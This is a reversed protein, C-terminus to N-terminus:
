KCYIKKDNKGFQYNVWKGRQAPYNYGTDTNKTRAGATKWGAPSLEEFLWKQAPLFSSESEAFVPAHGNLEIWGAARKTWAGSQKLTEIDNIVGCRRIMIIREAAVPGIGPVHLLTDFDAKNIEVPFFGPNMVAWATKPDTELPIDGMSNFVLDPFRFGYARMLFDCQYLRHERLLPSGEFGKGSIEDKKKQIASKTAESTSPGHQKQYASFYARFMFYDRYLRDVSRMIDFDKEGAAGIVFQTTQSTTKIATGSLGNKKAQLLGSVRSVAPLIDRELKKDPAIAELHRETPAELNISLRNALAAATDILHESCGPIIKLHIYGNFRYTRRLIVATKVMDEMARSPSGCVGSSLFIGEVLGSYVMEMFSAALEDPSLSVRKVDDNNVAFRCYTCNNKCSNSQLIKLIHVKGQGPVSAPYIWEHLPNEPKRTRGPKGAAGSSCSALCVDYRASEALETVKNSLM